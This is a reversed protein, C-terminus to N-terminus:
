EKWRQESFENLVSVERLNDQHSSQAIQLLRSNMKELVDLLMMEVTKGEDNKMSNRFVEPMALFNKVVGSLVDSFMKPIEGSLDNELYDDKVYSLNLKVLEFCRNVDDSFSPSPYTIKNQIFPLAFINERWDDTEKTFETNPSISLVSTLFENFMSDATLKLELLTARSSGPLLELTASLASNQKIFFKEVVALQILDKSFAPYIIALLYLLDVVGKYYDVIESGITNNSHGGGNFRYMKQIMNELKEIKLLAYAISFTNGADSNFVNEYVNLAKFEQVQSNFHNAIVYLEHDSLTSKDINELVSFHKNRLKMDLVEAVASLKLNILKSQSIKYVSSIISQTDMKVKIENEYFFGIRIKTMSEFSQEKKEEVGLVKNEDNNDDYRDDNEIGFWIKIKKFWSM